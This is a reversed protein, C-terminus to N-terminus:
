VSFLPCCYLVFGVWNPFRVRARVPSLFDRAMMAVVALLEVTGLCMLWM